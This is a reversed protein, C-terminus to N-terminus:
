NEGALWKTLIADSSAQVTAALAKVLAVREAVTFATLPENITLNVKVSNRVFESPRFPDASVKTQELSIVRNNRTKGYTIAAKLAVTGDASQYNSQNNGTSVRALSSAVGGITTSIPDTFAM